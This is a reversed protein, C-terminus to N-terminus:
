GAKRMKRIPALVMKLGLAQAVMFVTQVRPYMSKYSTLRYITAVSLGARRALEPKSWGNQRAMEFLDDLLNNIANFEEITKM